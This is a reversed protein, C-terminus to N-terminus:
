AIEDFLKAGTVREVIMGLVIYNTDSYEWGEGAAFPAHSDFLYAIEEAPKGVRDPDRTLAALFRGNLGYRVLGSTHRMLRRVRTDSANPLREFWEEEGLFSEIRDDLALKGEHVLQLATASVFTKGVSGALLRDEPRMPIKQERDSLGAALALT